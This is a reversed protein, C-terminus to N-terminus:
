NEEKPLDEPWYAANTGDEDIGFVVQEGIYLQIRDGHKELHVDIAEKDDQEKIKLQLKKKPAEETSAAFKSELTELLVSLMKETSSCAGTKFTVKTNDVEIDRIDCDDCRELLEGIEIANAETTATLINLDDWGKEVKFYKIGKMNAIKEKNEM